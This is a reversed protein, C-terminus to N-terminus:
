GARTAVEGNAGGSDGARKVYVSTHSYWRQQPTSGHFHHLTFGRLYPGTKELYYMRDVNDLVLLGGPKVKPAGHMVCSPRVRGDVVVMDFHKDPFEDIVSAYRRFNMKNAFQPDGSRYCKPDAIDGPHPECIDGPEPPVLRYDVTDYPRLRQQLMAYWHEDHEVSVVEAGYTLWFLTSGGSGYEFVRWGPAIRAQIFDIADFAMWPSPADLLYDKQRQSALWKLAHKLQRPTRLLLILRNTNRILWPDRNPNM